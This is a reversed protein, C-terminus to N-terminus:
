NTYDDYGHKQGWRILAPVSNCGSKSFLSRKHTEVTSPAIHLAEAVERTSKGKMLERLVDIERGTLEFGSETLSDNIADQVEQSFRKKGAVIDRIANALERGGESKLVYGNVGMKAMPIIHRPEDHTSLIMIKQDPFEKKIKETTEKGNMPKMNLDLIVLDIPEPSGRLYGLAQQGHEAKFVVEFDPQLNLIVELGELLLVHDDAILIKIM